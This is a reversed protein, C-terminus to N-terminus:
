RSGEVANKPFVKKANLWALVDSLRSRVSRGVKMYPPVDKGKCRDARLRSESMGCLQAVEKDRLLPDKLAEALSSHM